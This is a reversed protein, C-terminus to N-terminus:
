RLEQCVTATQQKTASDHGIRHLGMYQLRDPEEMWPIKWTLISSNPQWKRRWPIKRVWPGNGINAPLDKVVSGGPLGKACLLQKIFVHFFLCCPYLDSCVLHLWMGSKAILFHM